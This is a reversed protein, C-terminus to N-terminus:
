HQDPEGRHLERLVPAVRLVYDRYWTRKGAEQALQHEANARWAEIAAESQWYSVSIGLGDQQRVSELGLYGPQSAALAAMRAAMAEYEPGGSNRISTFIVAYYPPRPTSAIPAGRAPVDSM